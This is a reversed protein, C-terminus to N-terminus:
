PKEESENENLNASRHLRSTSLKEEWGTFKYWPSLHPSPSFCFGGPELMALFRAALFPRVQGM